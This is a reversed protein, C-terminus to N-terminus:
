FSLVFIRKNYYDDFYLSNHFRRKYVEMKQTCFACYYVISIVLFFLTFIVFYTLAQLLYFTFSPNIMGGEFLMDVLLRGVILVVISVFLVMTLLFNMMVAILRAKVFGRKEQTTLTLNFARMLAMTGSTSAYLAFFFGLSLVGGRPKSIIEVITRKAEGYIGAPM